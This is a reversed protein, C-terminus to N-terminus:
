LVSQILIRRGRFEVQEGAKRGQLIKGIPSALSISTYSEGDVEIVGLGAAVFYRGQDTVVVCGARVKECPTQVDIRDLLRRLNQSEALRRAYMEEEIQMMARGTEYKDGASSKTEESAAEQVQEIVELEHAIKADAIEVCVEFLRRKLALEQIQDQMVMEMATM